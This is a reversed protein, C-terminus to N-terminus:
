VGNKAHVAGYLSLGCRLSLRLAALVKPVPHLRLLGARAVSKGIGVWVCALRQSCFPFGSISRAKGLHTAPHPRNM